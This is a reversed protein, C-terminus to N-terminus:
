SRVTLPSGIRGERVEIRSVRRVRVEALGFSVGLDVVERMSCRKKTARVDTPAWGKREASAM